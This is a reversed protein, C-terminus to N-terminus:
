RSPAATSRRHHRAPPRTHSPLLFASRSGRTFRRPLQPDPPWPQSQTLSRASTSAPGALAGPRVRKGNM